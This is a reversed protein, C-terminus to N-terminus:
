GQLDVESSKNNLSWRKVKGGEPMECHEPIMLISLFSDDIYPSEKLVYSTLNVSYSFKSSLSSSGPFSMVSLFYANLFLNTV